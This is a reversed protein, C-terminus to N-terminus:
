SLMEVRVREGALKPMDGPPVHILCNAKALSSILNSAQNGTSSVRGEFYLGRQFHYLNLPGNLDDMLEAEHMVVRSEAGMLKMIARKGYQLFCIMTSIPNGPFHLLPVGNLTSFALPKGPRQLVKWFHITGGAAELARGVFDYEGMSVGGSTFVIDSEGAAEILVKMTMALDDGVHVHEVHVLGMDKCLQAIAFGNSDRLQGSRPQQDMPVLEDGTTLVTVRPQCNVALEMIGQSALLAMTFSSIAEGKHVIIDGKEFDQCAPRIFQGRDSIKSFRVKNGRVDAWEVPIIACHQDVPAGTMVRYCGPEIEGLESNGAKIEGKINYDYDAKMDVEPMILFGDMASSAFEPRDAPAIVSEALIRRKSTTLPIVESPLPAISDILLAQAEEVSILLNEPEIM